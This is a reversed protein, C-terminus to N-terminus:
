LKKFGKLREEDLDFYVNKFEFSSTFYCWKNNKDKVFGYGIEAYEGGSYKVLRDPFYCGSKPCKVALEVEVIELTGKFKTVKVDRPFDKSKSYKISANLQCNEVARAIVWEDVDGKELDNLNNLKIIENIKYGIPEARKDVKYEQYIKNEYRLFEEKTKKTLISEDSQSCSILAALGIGLLTKLAKM